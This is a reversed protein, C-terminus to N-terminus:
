HHPTAGPRAILDDDAQELADAADREAHLRKGQDRAEGQKAEAHVHLTRSLAVVRRTMTELVTHVPNAIPTGKQNEIVHGEAELRASLTEIDAMTRALTAAIALDHSDWKNRARAGTIGYWFPLDSERLRVHAPPELPGAAADSMAQTHGTVSDSRTRKTM